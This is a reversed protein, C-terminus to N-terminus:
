NRGTSITSNKWVLSSTWVDRILHLLFIVPSVGSTGESLLFGFIAAITAIAAIVAIAAIAAIAAIGAIGAIAAIANDIQM